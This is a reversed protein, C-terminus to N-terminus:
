TLQCLTNVIGNAYHILFNGFTKNLAKKSALIIEVKTGHEPYKKNKHCKMNQMRFIPDQDRPGNKKLSFYMQENDLNSSNDM